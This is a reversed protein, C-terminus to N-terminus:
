CSQPSPTIHHGQCRSFGADDDDDDDNMILRMKMIAMAMDMKFPPVEQIVSVSFYKVFHKTYLISCVLVINM